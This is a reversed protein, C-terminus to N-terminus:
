YGSGSVSIQEIPHWTTKVECFDSILYPNENEPDNWDTDYSKVLKVSDASYQQITKTLASDMSDTAIADIDLHRAVHEHIEKANGTLVNVVGAPVDSSNLVESFTISSLPKSESALVVVTNGGAIIPSLLSVLALLPSSERTFLFVVGKPELVSFNFHSSAVPNVSSFIQQYKDCWGAYYILRDISQTVESKAAAATLGQTQLESLFQDRRGELMEAIRYLIQSRNYATRSAWNAQASRAAVVANRMDKRSALCVNGLSQSNVEPNYFRGSETRPFAGGIYMKYTKQIELRTSNTKAM